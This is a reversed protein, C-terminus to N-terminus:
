CACWFTHLHTVCLVETLCEFSACNVQSSLWTNNLKVTFLHCTPESKTVNNFESCFLRRKQVKYENAVFILIMSLNTVDSSRSLSATHTILLMVEEPVYLVTILSM